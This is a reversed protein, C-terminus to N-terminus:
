FVDCYILYMKVHAFIELNPIIQLFSELMVETEMVFSRTVMTVWNRFYMQCCLTKKNRMMYRQFLRCDNIGFNTFLLIWTEMSVLIKLFFIWLQWFTSSWVALINDLLNPLSNEFCKGVIACFVFNLLLRWQKWSLQDRSKQHGHFSYKEM